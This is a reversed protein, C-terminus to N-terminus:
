LFLKARLPFPIINHRYQQQNLYRRALHPSRHVARPQGEVASPMILKERSKGSSQTNYFFLSPSPLATLGVERTGSVPNFSPLFSPLSLTNSIGQFHKAEFFSNKKLLPLGLFATREMAESEPMLNTNHCHVFTSCFNPPSHLPCKM